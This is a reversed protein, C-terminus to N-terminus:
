SRGVGRVIQFGRREEVSVADFLQSMRAVFWDPAKTIMQVVGGPKASRHAARVFIDAIKYHSYYPPNGVVLDFTRESATPGAHALEATINTLENLAASKLTCEVARVNSDIGHVQVGEARTAAALSVVGSGCGIDLVQMGAEVNMAEMLARSGLDLSRHSFVGPRSYVKLLRGGEGDRFAFECAYDRERKLPRDKVVVYGAGRKLSLKVVKPNLAEMQQLLWHDKANDVVAILSGDVDLRLYAQQLMERALDAEGHKTVPIAALEFQGAPLDATCVVEVNKRDHLWARSEDAAFTDLFHVVGRGQSREAISAAGQGRGASTCLFSKPALKRCAEILLHEAGPMKEAFPFHDDDSM